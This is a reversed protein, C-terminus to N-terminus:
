EDNNHDRQEDLLRLVRAAEGATLPGIAQCPIRGTHEADEYALRKSRRDPRARSIVVNRPRGDRSLTIEYYAAGWYPYRAARGRAKASSVRVTAIPGHTRVHEALVDLANNVTITTTTTTTTTTDTM